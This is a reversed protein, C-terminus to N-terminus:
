VTNSTSPSFQKTTTGSTSYHVQKTVNNNHGIYQKCLLDQMFSIAMYTPYEISKSFGLEVPGSECFVHGATLVANM